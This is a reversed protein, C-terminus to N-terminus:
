SGIVETIVFSYDILNVGNVVWRFNSDLWCTLTESFTDDTFTVQTKPYHYAWFNEMALTEALTRNNFSLLYQRSMNGTARAKRAYGVSDSILVIKDNTIEYTFNPRNTITTSGPNSPSLGVKARLSLSFGFDEPDGVTAKISSDLYFDGSANLDANTWSVATSPYFSNWDVLYTEYEDQDWFKYDLTYFRVAPSKTVTRRVGTRSQTIFVNKRTEVEVPINPLIVM